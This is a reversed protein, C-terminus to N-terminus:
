KSEMVCKSWITFKEASQPTIEGDYIYLRFKKIRKKTFIQVESLTIPIFASYAYGDDAADVDLEATPKSFKTGDEFLVTVGQKSVNLTSGNTQLALYYVTKGTKISKYLIVSTSESLGPYPTNINIENTFEDVERMNQECLITPNYTTKTTLFPFYSETTKNFKFYIVRKSTTDKLIFIPDEYTAEGTLKEGRKNVINEVVFIKNVLSDKSTKVREIDCAYLVNSGFSHQCAELTEYFCYKFGIENEQNITFYANQYFMYDDGLFNKEFQQANMNGYIVLFFFLATTFKM